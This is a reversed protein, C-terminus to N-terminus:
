CAKEEVLGCYESELESALELQQWQDSPQDCKSYLKTDDAYIVINRIVDDPLDNTYLLFLTLRLISLQSVGINDLYAQLSKGDM